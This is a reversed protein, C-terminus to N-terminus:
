EICLYRQNATKYICVAVHETLWSTVLCIETRKNLAALLVRGRPIRCGGRILARTRAEIRLFCGHTTTRSLFLRKIGDFERGHTVHFPCLRLRVAPSVWTLASIEFACQVQASVAALFLKANHRRLSVLDVSNFVEVAQGDM